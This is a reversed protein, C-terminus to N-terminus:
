SEETKAAFMEGIDFGVATVFNTGLESGDGGLLIFNDLGSYRFSSSSLSIALSFVLV